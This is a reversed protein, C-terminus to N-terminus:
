APNRWFCTVWANGDWAWKEVIWGPMMLLESARPPVNRDRNRWECLLVLFSGDNEADHIKFRVDNLDIDNNEDLWDILANCEDISPGDM